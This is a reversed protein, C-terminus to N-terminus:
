IKETTLRGVMADYEAQVNPDSFQLLGSEVRATGANARTAAGTLSITVIPAAFGLAILLWALLAM